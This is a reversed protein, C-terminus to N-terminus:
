QKKKLQELIVGELYAPIDRDGILPTNNGVVIVEPVGPNEIALKQNLLKSLANNTENHWTELIQFDVDPYKISLNQIFPIINHCHPCEEGYFFYVTVSDQVSADALPLMTSAPEGPLAFFLACVLLVVTFFLGAVIKLTNDM